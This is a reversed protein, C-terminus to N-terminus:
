KRGDDGSLKDPKSRARKRSKLQREALMMPSVVDPITFGNLVHLQDLVRLTRILTSLAVPQGRELLSLTSRSIGAALALEDQSRNQSLRHHRIYDGIRSEIAADSYSAWSAPHEESM